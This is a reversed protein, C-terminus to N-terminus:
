VPLILKNSPNVLSYEAVYKKGVKKMRSNIAYGAQRLEFIRAGLRFCGFRNLAEIPTIKKGRKLHALIAQSITTRM